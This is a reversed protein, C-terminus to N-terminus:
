QRIYKKANKLLTNRFNFNEEFSLYPDRTKMIDDNCMKYNNIIVACKYSSVQSTPM